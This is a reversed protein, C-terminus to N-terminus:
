RILRAHKAECTSIGKLKRICFQAQSSEVGQLYVMLTSREGWLRRHEMAGVMCEESLWEREELLLFRLRKIALPVQNPVGFQLVLQEYRTPYLCACFDFMPSHKVWREIAQSMGLPIHAFNDALTVFFKAPLVSSILEDDVLDQFPKKRSCMLNLSFESFHKCNDLLYAAACLYAIDEGSVDAPVEPSELTYVKSAENLLYYLAFKLATCMDYKDAAIVIQLIERPVRQRVVFEHRNQYSLTLTLFRMADPDDEPLPIEKTQSEKWPPSLMSAFVPSATTLIVSSAPIREKDPGVLLVLDDRNPDAVADITIPKSDLDM